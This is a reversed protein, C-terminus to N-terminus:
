EIRGFNYKDLVEKVEGMMKWEEPNTPHLKKQEELEKLFDEESQELIEIIEDPCDFEIIVM